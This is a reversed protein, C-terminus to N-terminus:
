RDRTRYAMPSRQSSHTFIGLFTETMRIGAIQVCIKPAEKSTTSISHSVRARSLPLSFSLFFYLVSDALGIKVSRSHVKTKASFELAIRPHFDQKELLM